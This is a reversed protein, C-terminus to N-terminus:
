TGSFPLLKKSFNRVYYWIQRLKVLIDCPFNVLYDKSDKPYPETKPLYGLQQMENGVLWMFRSHRAFGWNKYRDLPSFTESKLTPKWHLSGSKKLDSSGRVPADKAKQFDYKDVDLDLFRLVKKMESRSDQFVEEYKLLLIKRDPNDRMCDLIQNVGEKWRLTAQYFSRNFSTMTSEVVSRGDRVLFIIYANPFLKFLLHSPIPNPSKSVLKKAGSLIDSPIKGSRNQKLENQSLLLKALLNGLERYLLDGDELVTNTPPYYKWSGLSSKVFNELHVSNQLIRDETILESREIDPHLSVLDFIYNTGSRQTVGIVFVLKESLSTECDNFNISDITNINM